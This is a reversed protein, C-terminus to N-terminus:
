TKFAALSAQGLSIGGDNCPVQHNVLVNLHTTEALTKTDHLLLENQFVGGSLAVTELEYEEGLQLASTILGNALGRIFARAIDGVTKDNKRESIVSELLPRYDWERGVLGFAYADKSQSARALHELWIAAQGEFSQSRTFGLLAAVADFLRGVSSTPFVRFNKALLQKAQNYREPFNFPPVTFDVDFGQLFGVAAQVPHHAAADGGVLSAYRLHTM